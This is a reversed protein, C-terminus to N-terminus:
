LHQRNFAIRSERDPSHARFRVPVQQDLAFGMLLAFPEQALLRDAEDNGTFHLRDPTTRTPV